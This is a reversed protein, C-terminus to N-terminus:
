ELEVHDLSLAEFQRVPRRLAKGLLLPLDNPRLRGEPRVVLIDMELLVHGPELEHAAYLARRARRIVAKESEGVKAIQPTNCKEAKRVDSIFNAFSDPEMAYSHDFGQAKRDFTYHKEIWEAGNAVALISAISSETHDSFGVPLGFASKLVRIFSVNGREVPCPYTSVCHLLVVDANGTSLVDTVAREIEGLSSMGTSILVRRGLESAACLLPMVSFTTTSM